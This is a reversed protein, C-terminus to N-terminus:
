LATKIFITLQFFFADLKLNQIILKGFFHL